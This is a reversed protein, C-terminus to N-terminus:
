LDKRGWLSKSGPSKLPLFRKAFYFLGRVPIAGPPPSSPPFSLARLFIMMFSVVPGVRERKSLFRSLPGSLFSVVVFLATGRPGLHPILFFTLPGLRWVALYIV